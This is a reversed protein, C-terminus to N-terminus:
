KSNAKQSRKKIIHLITSNIIEFGSMCVLVAMTGINTQPILWVMLLGIVRGISVFFERLLHAEAGYESLRLDEMVKFHTNLVPTATFTTFFGYFANFIVITIINLEFVMAIVPLTVAVAALVSFKVRNESKVFSAYISAGLLTVVYGITSNLSTYFEKNGDSALRYFLITVFIPITFSRCNSLGNAIMVLRANKDKLITKCVMRFASGKKHKPLEPLRCNTFLAFFALLASLGFVIMYGISTGFCKILLGSLLPLVISIVSGFLGLAGAILDRNDDNTYNLMQASYVSYYYGAGFSLMVAFLPYLPAVKEGFLCLTVLAAGYFVFGIRQTLLAHFKETFIMATIMAAPQMLAMIVNYIIIEKSTSGYSNLLFTNLFLTLIANMGNFLVQLQVFRRAGRTLKKASFNFKM